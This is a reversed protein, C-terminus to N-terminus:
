RLKGEKADIRAVGERILDIFAQGDDRGLVRKMERELTIFGDDLPIEISRHKPKSSIRTTRMRNKRM